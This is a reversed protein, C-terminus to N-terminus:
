EGTGRSLPLLRLVPGGVLAASSPEMALLRRAAEATSVRAVQDQRRAFAEAALPDLEWRREILCTIARWAAERDEPAFDRDAALPYECYFIADRVSLESPTNVAERATILNSDGRFDRVPPQPDDTDM